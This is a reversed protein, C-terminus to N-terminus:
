PGNDEDYPVARLLCYGAAFVCGWGVALPWAADTPPITALRWVGAVFLTMTAFIWATGNM